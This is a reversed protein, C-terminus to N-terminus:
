PFIDLKLGYVGVMLRFKVGGDATTINRYQTTFYEPVPHITILLSIKLTVRPVM